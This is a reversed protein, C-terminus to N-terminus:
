PLKPGLYYGYLFPQFAPVPFSLSHYSKLLSILPLPFPKKHKPFAVRQEMLLGRDKQGKCIIKDLFKNISLIYDADGATKEM